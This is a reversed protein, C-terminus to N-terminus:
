KKHIKISAALVKFLSSCDEEAASDAFNFQLFYGKRLVAYVFTRARHVKGDHKLDFSIRSYVMKTGNITVMSPQQEVIANDLISITSKISAKLSQLFTNQDPANTAVVNVKVMPIIGTSTKLDRKSAAFILKNKQVNLIKKLEAETFDFHKVNNIADNAEVEAWGEPKNISFGWVLSTFVDGAFAISCSCLVVSILLFVKRVM